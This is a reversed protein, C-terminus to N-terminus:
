MCLNGCKIHILLSLGSVKFPLLKQHICKQFTINQFQLTKLQLTKLIDFLILINKPM